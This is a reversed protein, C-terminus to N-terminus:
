LGYILPLRLPFAGISISVLVKNSLCQTSDKNSVRAEASLQAEGKPQNKYRAPSFNNKIETTIDQTITKKEV